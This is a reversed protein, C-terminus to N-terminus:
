GDELADQRIVDTFCPEAIVFECNRCEYQGRRTTVSPLTDNDLHDRRLDRRDTIYTWNAAIAEPTATIKFSEMDAPIIWAITLTYVETGLLHMVGLIYNWWEENDRYIVDEISLGAERDAKKLASRRTTKVEHLDNGGLVALGDPSYWLQHEDSWVPREAGPGLIVDQFGHGFGYWIVEQGTLDSDPTGGMRILADTTRRKLVVKRQCHIDDSLHDDQETGKRKLGLRQAALDLIKERTQPDREVVIGGEVHPRFHEDLNAM